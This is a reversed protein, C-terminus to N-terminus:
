VEDKIESLVDEYNEVETASLVYLYARENKFDELFYPDQGDVCFCGLGFPFIKHWQRLINPNSYLRRNNLEFEGYKLDMYWASLNSVYRLTITATSAGDGVAFSISQNYAAEINAIREM